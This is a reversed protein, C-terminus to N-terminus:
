DAGHAPPALVEAQCPLGCTLTPDLGVLPVPASDLDPASSWAYICGSSSALRRLQMFDNGTAQKLLAVLEQAIKRLAHSVNGGGVAGHFGADAPM